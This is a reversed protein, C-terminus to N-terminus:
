AAVKILPKTREIVRGVEVAPVNKAALAAIFKAADDSSVSTFLGGATQPDFLM